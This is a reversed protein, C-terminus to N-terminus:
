FRIAEIKGCLVGEDILRSAEMFANSKVDDSFPIGLNICNQLFDQLQEQNEFRKILKGRRIESNEDSFDSLRQGGINVQRVGIYSVYASGGSDLM